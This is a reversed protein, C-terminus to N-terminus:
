RSQLVTRGSLIIFFHPVLTSDWLIPAMVKRLNNQWAPAALVFSAPILGDSDVDTQIAPAFIRFFIVLITFITFLGRLGELYGLRQDYDRGLDNHDSQVIPYSTIGFLEKRQLIRKEEDVPM